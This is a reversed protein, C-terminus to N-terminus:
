APTARPSSPTPTPNPHPYPKFAVRARAKARVGARVQYSDLLVVDGPRMEVRLVNRTVVEDIWELM